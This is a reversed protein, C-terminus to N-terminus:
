PLTKKLVKTIKSPCMSPAPQNALPIENVQRSHLHALLRRPERSLCPFVRCKLNKKESRASGLTRACFSIVYSIIIHCVNLLLDFPIISYTSTGTHFITTNVHSALFDDIKLTWGDRCDGVSVSIWGTTVTSPMERSVMNGCASLQLPSFLFVCFFLPRTVSSAFFLFVFPLPCPCFPHFLLLLLLFPTFNERVLRKWRM